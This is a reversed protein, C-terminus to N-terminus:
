IQGRARNARGWAEPILNAERSHVIVQSKWLRSHNPLPYATDQLLGLRLGLEQNLFLPEGASAQYHTGLPSDAM